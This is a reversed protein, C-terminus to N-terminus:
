FPKPAQKAPAAVPRTRLLAELVKVLEGPHAPKELYLDALPESAQFAEAVYGSVVVVPVAAAADQRVAQVISRGSDEGLRWDTVIADFSDSRLTRLADAVTTCATVQYGAQELITQKIRIIEPDDDVCLIKAM